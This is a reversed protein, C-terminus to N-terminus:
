SLSVLVEIESVDPCQVAQETWSHAEELNLINMWMDVQLM